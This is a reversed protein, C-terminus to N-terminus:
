RAPRGATAIRSILERVAQATDPAQWIASIVAMGNAGASVVSPVSEAQIGGIAFLPLTTLQRVARLGDLGVVPDHDIKSLPRFIPGFGLYDAGSTAAARVQEVNHTSLGILRTPGLLRRAHEVPLDAQGLHVGDAEIALALDVRDNVILTAGFSTAARRLEAGVRYAERMAASKDRYQFLRAGGDVAAKLADPLSRGRLADGDLIVYLGSLNVVRM